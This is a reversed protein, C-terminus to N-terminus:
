LGNIVPILLNLHRYAKAPYGFGDAKWVINKEVDIEIVRHHGTDAILTNGNYLRIALYQNYVLEPGVEWVTRGSPNIEVIKHLGRISVLTNGNQLRQCYVPGLAEFLRPEPPGLNDVSWVPEGRQDVEFVRNKGADAVLTNGNALREAKWPWRLNELKWVLKGRGDFQRVFGPIDDDWGAVLLHGNELFQLSCPYGGVKVRTVIRGDSAIKWVARERIVNIWYSGDSAVVVDYPMKFSWFDKVIRGHTDIHVVRGPPNEDDGHLRGPMEDVILASRDPYSGMFRYENKNNEWWKKWSEIAARREPISEFGTLGFNVRTMFRLLYSATYFVSQEPASLARLLFEMLYKGHNGILEPACRFVTKANRVRLSGGWEMMITPNKNVQHLMELSEEFRHCDDSSVHDGAQFARPVEDKPMDAQHRLCGPVAWALLMIMIYALFRKKMM